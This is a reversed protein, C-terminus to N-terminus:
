QWIALVIDDYQWIMHNSIIRINTHRSKKIKIIYLNFQNNQKTFQYPKKKKMTCSPVILTQCERYKEIMPKKIVEMPMAAQFLLNAAEYFQKHYNMLYTIARIIM